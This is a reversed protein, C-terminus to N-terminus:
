FSTSGSGARRSGPRRSALRGVASGSKPALSARRFPEPHPCAWSPCATERCGLQLSAALDVGAVWGVLLGEEFGAVGALDVLRRQRAAFQATLRRASAHGGCASRQCLPGSSELGAVVRAREDEPKDQSLKAEAHWSEARLRFAVVQDAMERATKGMRDLSPREVAGEFHDVTRRLVPM